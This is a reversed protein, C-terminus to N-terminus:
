KNTIKGINIKNTVEKTQQHPPAKAVRIFGELGKTHLWNKLYESIEIPMEVIAENDSTLTCNETYSNSLRLERRARNKAERQKEIDPFHSSFPKTNTYFHDM